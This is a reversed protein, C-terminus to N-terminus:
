VLLSGSLLVERKYIPCSSHTSLRTRSDDDSTRSQSRRAITHVERIVQSTQSNLKFYSQVSKLFTFIQCETLNPSSFHFSPIQCVFVVSWLCFLLLFEVFELELNLQVSQSVRIKPPEM